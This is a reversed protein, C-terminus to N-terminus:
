VLVCSLFKIQVNENFLRRPMECVRDQIDATGRSKLSTLPFGIRRGFYQPPLTESGKGGGTCVGSVM